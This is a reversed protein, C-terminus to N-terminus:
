KFLCFLIKMKVEYLKQMEFIFTSDVYTHDVIALWLLRNGLRDLPGFQRQLQFTGVIPGCVKTTVIYLVRTRVLKYRQINYYLSREQSALLCMAPGFKGNAEVLCM